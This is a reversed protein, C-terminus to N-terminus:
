RSGEGSLEPGFHDCQRHCDVCRITCRVLTGGSGNAGIHLDANIMRARYAMMRMGLGGDQRAGAQIGIGDDAVTMAVTSPSGFCDVRVEIRSAQAHKVANAIAEQAIRYLQVIRESDCALSEPIHSIEIRVPNASALQRCYDDLFAIMRHRDQEVPWLGRALGYAQDVSQELVRALASVEQAGAEGAVQKQELVACRLRAATLHQCLGDHLSHSLYRRENESVNAVERELRAREIIEDELAANRSELDGSLREVSAFARSFKLALALGQALIFLFLGVHILYVSRIYGLECLMDNVAISGLAAFGWMIFRAGERGRRVAVLMRQLVYAILGISILYYVHLLEYLRPIPLFIAVAVFVAANSQCWRMVRASFEKPYLAQFFMFGVPVSAFFSVAELRHLFALPIDPLYHQLFWDSSTSSSFSLLWLLCYLGFYLPERSQRRFGFFLLHYCGMMLLCGAFFHAAGWQRNQRALMQADLGLSLPSILWREAYLQNSVELVLDIAEGENRFEALRVGYQTREVVDGQGLEGQAVLVEGNLWLRYSAAVEAVRVAYMGGGPPMQVRLRLTAQRLNRLGYADDQFRNSVLPLQVGSFGPAPSEDALARPTLLRGPYLDWGAALDVAGNRAFVVERLDLSGAGPSAALALPTALACLLLLLFLRPADWSVGRATFILAHWRRLFVDSFARCLDPARQLGPLFHASAHGGSPRSRHGDSPRFLRHRTETLLKLSAGGIVTSM